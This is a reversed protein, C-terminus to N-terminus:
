RFFIIHVYVFYLFFVDFLYVFFIIIIRMRELNSIQQEVDKKKDAEEQIERRYTEHLKVIEDRVAPDHNDNDQLMCLM